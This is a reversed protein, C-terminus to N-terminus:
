ISLLLTTTLAALALALARAFRFARTFSPWACAPEAEWADFEGDDEEDGEAAADVGAGDDGLRLAGCARAVRREGARREGVEEEDAEEGEVGVFFAISDARWAWRAKRRSSSSPKGIAGVEGEDEDGAEGVDQDGLV